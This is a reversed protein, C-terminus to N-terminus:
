FCCYYLLKEEKPELDNVKTNLQEIKDMKRQFFNKIILKM